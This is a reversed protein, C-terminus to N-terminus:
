FMRSSFGRLVTSIVTAKLHLEGVNGRGECDEVVCHRSHVGEPKQSGVIGLYRYGDEWM